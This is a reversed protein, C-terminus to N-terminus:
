LERNTIGGQTALKSFKLGNLTGFKKGCLYGYLTNMKEFQLYFQIINRFVIDINEEPSTGDAIMKYSNYSKGKGINAIQDETGKM